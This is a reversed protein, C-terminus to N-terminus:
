TKPLICNTEIKDKFNGIYVADAGSAVGIGVMCSDTILPFSKQLNKVIKLLTSDGLIWPENSKISLQIGNTKLRNVKTSLQSLDHLKTYDTKLNKGHQIITISPYATVLKKFANARELDVIEVINYLQTIMLRLKKGYQSKMWQNSCIFCHTGTSKLYCLTKEFFPVYLDCRDTFTNFNNKCYGKLTHPLNDYRIYPPNGFIFDFKSTLEFSLFEANVLWASIIQSTQKKSFGYEYCIVELRNACINLSSKSIEIARVAQKLFTFDHNTQQTKL